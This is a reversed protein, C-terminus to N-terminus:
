NGYLVCLIKLIDFNYNVLSPRGDKYVCEDYLNMIPKRFWFNKIKSCNPNLTNLQFIGFQVRPGDFQVTQVVVPYDLIEKPSHQFKRIWAGSVAFAKILARSEFQSDTM